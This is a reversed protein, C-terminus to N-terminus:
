IINGFELIQSISMLKDLMVIGLLDFKVLSVSELDEMEFGAIVTNEKADYIMPCIEALPKASVIIGAAHKSQSSKTGELRIAQEFRKNLPGKLENNEDLYCWEKLSDNSIHKNKHKAKDNELTYLIISSEGTEEKMEQLEGSIKAEDPICKTIRNMEEFKIDNYSRLVAKIAGRGKLTQYTIMGSVKDHGYKDKLYQIIKERSFKPVDIDVDPPSNKRSSDYFRSFLLSYKIPDVQTIGILYSILCGASSGRALGVLWKNERCYRLIDQVILFYGSMGAGQIVGLEEKVRDIYEQQKDKPIVNEIKEKWGIRCLERLYEDETKNDPCPFKPLVPNHFIDKYEECMDAVLLTNSLEEETNGFEIMEDYTPIHFTDSNFFCKLGAEEDYMESLTKHMNNCLLIRQDYADERKCYHADPTGVCKIGTHKSIERVFNAIIVSDPSNQSDVLQVELFFNDKGFMEQLRQAQRNGADL